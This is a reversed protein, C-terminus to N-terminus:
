SLGPCSAFGVGTNPMPQESGCQQCRPHGNKTTWRAPQFEHPARAAPDKAQEAIFDTEEEWTMHKRTQRKKRRAAQEPGYAAILLENMMQELASDPPVADGCIRVMQEYLNEVELNRAVLNAVETVDARRWGPRLPPIVIAGGVYHPDNLQKLSRPENIHACYTGSQVGDYAFTKGCGEAARCTLSEPLCEMSQWAMGRRHFDKVLDFEDSFIGRYFAALTEIWPHQLPEGAAAGAPVVGGVPYLMESAVYHGIIYEAQHGMNLPTNVVTPHQRALHDVDFIHGNRNGAPDANVYNGMVWGIDDRIKIWEKAGAWAIEKNEEVLVLPGAIHFGRTGEIVVAGTPDSM